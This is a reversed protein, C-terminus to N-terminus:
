VETQQSSAICTEPQNQLIFKTTCSRNIGWLQVLFVVRKKKQQHLHAWHPKQWGLFVILPPEFPLKCRQNTLIPQCVICYSFFFGALM